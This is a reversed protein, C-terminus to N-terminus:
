EKAASSPVVRVPMGNGGEGGDECGTGGARPLGEPCGFEPLLM